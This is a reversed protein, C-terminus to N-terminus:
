TAPALFLTADDLILRMFGDQQLALSVSQGNVDASLAGGNFDFTWFVDGGRRFSRLASSVKEWTEIQDLEEFWVVACYGRTFKVGKMKLPDDMGRFVIKQGTPRYTMEMPNRTVTFWDELGLTSIAWLMQNYVSDRLTTSFRRVVVANADPHSLLLLVICLSVFSSKTSGRGGKLWFDTCAHTMVADFVGDFAPIVNDAVNVTVSM